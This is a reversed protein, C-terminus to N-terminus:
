SRRIRCTGIGAHGTGGITGSGISPPGTTPQKPCTFSLLRMGCNRSANARSPDPRAAAAPRSRTAAGARSRAAGSAHDAAVVDGSSSSQRRSAAQSATTESRQGVIPSVEAAAIRARESPLGSITLSTPANRSSGSSTAILTGTPSPSTSASTAAIRRAAACGPSSRLPAPADGRRLVAEVPRGIEVGLRELEAIRPPRPM